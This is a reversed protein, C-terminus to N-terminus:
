NRSSRRQARAHYREAHHGVTEAYLRTAATPPHEFLEMIGTKTRDRVQQWGSQGFRRLVAQRGLRHGTSTSNFVAVMVCGFLPYTNM